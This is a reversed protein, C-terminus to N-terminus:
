TARVSIAKVGLLRTLGELGGAMVYDHNTQFPGRAVPALLNMWWRTTRINWDYQVTTLGPRDSSLTWVGTGELEGTATGALRTPSDIEDVRMDFGLTYPLKGKFVFRRVAGIGRSDGPRVAEVSIVQPWWGPWADTDYIAGYVTEIPADVRWITTFSYNAM